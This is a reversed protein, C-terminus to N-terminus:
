RTLTIMQARFPLRSAWSTASARFSIVLVSDVRPFNRMKPVLLSAPYGEGWLKHGQLGPFIRSNQEELKTPWSPFGFVNMRTLDCVALCGNILGEVIFGNLSPNDIDYARALSSMRKKRDEAKIERTARVTANVCCNLALASIPKAMM